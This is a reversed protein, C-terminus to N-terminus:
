GIGVSKFRASEVQEGIEEIAVNYRMRLAEVVSSVSQEPTSAAASLGIAKILGLARWDVGDADAVLQVSSCGADRAVESLRRANSSFGEGVILMADVHPAIAGVARQRNTTAYCIDSGAPGSIGPFRAELREVLRAADEVSFTTQIAYAAATASGLLLNDIDELSAVVTATGAPVQGLTGEIEPHGRHGILLVHRGERWHRVTERQVKGVLPCMADILRLGRARGSATVSRAVGHASLILVAGPPADEVEQVFIAGRAELARVVALNHVIPRRVYVPTGYRDLADEVADIARRVGACFGRPSALLVRLPPRGAAPRQGPYSVTEALSDTFHDM